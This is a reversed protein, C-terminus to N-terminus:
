ASPVVTKPVKGTVRPIVKGAATLDLCEQFEDPGITGHSLDSLVHARDPARVGDLIGQPSGEPLQNPFGREDLDTAHYEAGTGALTASRVIEPDQPSTSGHWQRVGYMVFQEGKAGIWQSLAFHTDDLTSWPHIAPMYM